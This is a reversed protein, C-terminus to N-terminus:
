FAVQYLQDAFYGAANGVSVYTCKSQKKVVPGDPPVM